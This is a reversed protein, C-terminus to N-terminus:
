RHMDGFRELLFQVQQDPLERIFEEAWEVPLNHLRTHLSQSTGHLCHTPGCPTMAMCSMAWETLWEVM